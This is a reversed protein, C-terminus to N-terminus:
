LVDDKIEEECGYLIYLGYGDKTFLSSIVRNEKQPKKEEWGLKLLFGRVTLYNLYFEKDSSFENDAM